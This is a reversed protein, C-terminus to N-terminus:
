MVQSMQVFAWTARISLAPPQNPLQLDWTVSSLARLYPTLAFTTPTLCNESPM